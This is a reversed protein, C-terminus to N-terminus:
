MDPTLNVYKTEKKSLTKSSTATTDTKVPCVGDLKYEVSFPLVVLMM